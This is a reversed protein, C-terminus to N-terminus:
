APRIIWAKKQNSERHFIHIFINTVYICQIVERLISALRPYQTCMFGFYIYFILPICALHHRLKRQRRNLVLSCVTVIAKSAPCKIHINGGHPKSEQNPPDLEM